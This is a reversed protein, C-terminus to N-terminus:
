TTLRKCQDVLGKINDKNVTLRNFYQADYLKITKDSLIALKTTGWEDGTLVLKTYNAISSNDVIPFQETVNTAFVFSNHQNIGLAHVFLYTSSTSPDQMMFAMFTKHYSRVLNSFYANPLNNKKFQFNEYQQYLPLRMRYNLYLYMEIDYIEIINTGRYVVYYKNDFIDFNVLDDIEM